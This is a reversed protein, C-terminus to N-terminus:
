KKAYKICIERTKDTSEDDGILIEFDFNTEQELVSEISEEIFKEHNYTQLMVSVLVNHPVKNEYEEISDAREDWLQKDYIM